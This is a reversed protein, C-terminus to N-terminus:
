VPPSVRDRCSARGIEKKVLLFSATAVLPMFFGIPGKSFIAFFIFVPFLYSFKGKFDREQYLRFFSYLALIIFMCMLMDMRLFFSLGLFLGTSMMALIAVLRTTETAYPAIWRDMIKIIVIAPIVSFLAIYWLQHSGFLIKGLMIIWLYLPPKDAYPIAHNTFAFFSGNELAENAISLYRLENAPTCDRNLMVPLLVIIYLYPLIKILNKM